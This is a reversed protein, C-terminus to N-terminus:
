IPNILSPKLIEHGIRCELCRKADCYENKLQLLAQSHMANFPKLGLESFNRSISNTEAKIQELWDTAKQQLSEDHKLQGYVFLFPIITNILILNVSATGLSKTKTESKTDFRFHNKWYDSAYVKLLNSATSLKGAELIQNLLASSNQILRAFQSIRITPFNGPHMRMFKWLKKDITKISYKKSLFEYEKHLQRPYDDKFNENLMGATGFLLAEIQMVEDKHKALLKLPLYTALLEFTDSNTKFGFNRALKRYFVEQLDNGTKDLETEILEAKQNLREAMLSDLWSMRKFYDVEVIQNECAIWKDSKLFDCYKSYISPDFKGILELTPIQEGNERRVPKDNQYVVHLIINEYAPDNQHRHAYWDSSKLHIEINGAWTTKGIRIRGNFFDPGSNFNQTGPKLVNVTDSNATKLNPFLLQYKWLYHIFDEKM